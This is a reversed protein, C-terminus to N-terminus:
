SDGPEAEAAPEAGTPHPQDEAGEDPAAGEAAAQEDIVSQDHRLGELVKYPGVIVRNTEELGARIVTHTADSPGIEVPTAVAKEDICRYVVATYTKERQVHDSSQRIDAPLEDVRRGLVAQTPLKLVNEQREVTIRADGSLGAYIKRGNTDLAIETEFYKGGTADTNHQLAVSEVTGAFQEDPYAQLVIIAPQGEALRGIDAEDVRAIFLMRSLDAVEMIVTGPNNMTGTVVLEGEEANIRTIVGDIPSTITTYKLDEQVRAIDADAAELNHRLVQINLRDAELQHEASRLQAELEEVARRAEDVASQSVDSSALLKSQRELNRRAEALSAKIGTIQARQSALRAESVKIQAAQAARQAQASRLAAELDSADLEVLVSGEGRREGGEVRQGEEFPLSEIMASVRASISVHKRPEVEGPADIMEALDGATPMALIVETPDTSGAYGTATLGGLWFVAGLTAVVALLVAITFKATQGM